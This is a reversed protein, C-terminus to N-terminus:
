RCTCRSSTPPGCCRTSCASGCASRMRRRGRDPPRHRLVARGHRLGQRPARGEQRHHRPRHHRADQRATRLAQTSPWDNGRWRGSAVNAHQWVLRRCVALMLMIAHEAVAIPTPAATTASRCAPAARPRSTAATTAPPSCSCSSSTRRPPTSTTTWARTASASSTTPAPSPPTSPPPSPPPRSSNSARALERAIRADVDGMPVFVIRQM